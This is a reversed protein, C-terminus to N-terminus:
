FADERKAKQKSQKKEPIGVPNIEVPPNEHNRHKFLWPFRNMKRVKIVLEGKKYTIFQITNDNMYVKQKGHLAGNRYSGSKVLKGKGDYIRFRGHQLGKRWNSIQEFEGAINWNRWEGIKLGYKYEGKQKLNKNPYYETYNGHLLKGDYGGRTIKIDNSKYWYYYKNDNIKINAEEHLVTAYVIHDEFNLIVRQNSPLEFSKQATVMTPVTLLFALVIRLAFM